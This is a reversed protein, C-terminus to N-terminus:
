HNALGRIHSNYKNTCSIIPLINYKRTNEGEEGSESFNKLYSMKHNQDILQCFAIVKQFNWIASTKELTIGSVYFGLM